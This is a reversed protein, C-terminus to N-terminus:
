RASDLFCASCYRRPSSDGNARFFPQVIESYTPADSGFASCRNKFRVGHSVLAVCLRKRMDAPNVPARAPQHARAPSSARPPATSATATVSPLPQPTLPPRSLGLLATRQHGNTVIVPQDRHAHGGPFPCRLGTLRPVEQLDKAQDTAGNRTCDTMGATDGASDTATAEETAEEAAEEAAEETAAPDASAATATSALCAATSVRAPPRPSNSHKASIVSGRDARPIRCASGVIRPNHVAAAADPCSSSFSMVAQILAAPGCTSAANPHRRSAAPRCM